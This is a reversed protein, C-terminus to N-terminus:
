EGEAKYNLVNLSRNREECRVKGSRAPDKPDTTLSHRTTKSHILPLGIRPEPSSSIALNAFSNTYIGLRYLSSHM